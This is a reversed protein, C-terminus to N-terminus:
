SFKHHHKHICSYKRNRHKLVTWVVCMQGRCDIEAFYFLAHHTAIMSLLDYAGMNTSSPFYLFIFFVSFFISLFKKPASENHLISKFKSYMKKM